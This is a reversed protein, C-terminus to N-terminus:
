ELFGDPKDTLTLIDIVNTQLWQDVQSYDYDNFEAYFEQSGDSSVMGISVSTTLQHKRTFEMDYFVITM